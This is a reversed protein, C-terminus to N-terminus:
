RAGTWSPALVVANFFLRLTSLQTARFNPDDAFLIVQGRGKPELWLYPTRALAEQAEPWMFGALRLSDRDPFAAVHRATRSLTFAYNSQVMAGLEQPSGFGLWHEDDVKVRLIAGPTRLLDLERTLPRPEAPRESSAPESASPTPQGTGRGTGRGPAAPAALRSAAAGGRDPADFFLRVPVEDRKLTAGTWEVGKRTAFAAAGKILVVTGGEEVWRRVREIGREGLAEQYAAPAGHPFVIVGYRSLDASRLQDIKIATFPLRLREELTFWTAGYSREDTPEDTVVALRPPKLDVFPDGGLDPGAQTRAGDVAWLRVGTESALALLRDHLTAPNREVRALISGRPFETDLVRFPETAVALKFQEALLRATLRMSGLSASSVLYGYRARAPAAPVGPGQGGAAGDKIAPERGAPADTPSGTLSPPDEAWYAEVGYLLPLSWATTDYFGDRPREGALTAREKKRREEQLFEDKFAPELELIAKALRKQPQAMPVVYAGAPIDRPGPPGGLYSHARQLKIPAALRHVEIRQARLTEVLLAARAEDAGPVLVVQKMPEKQGEEIATKKYRYLERLRATKHEATLALTAMSATHHHLVGDRLTVITGDERELALGKSGGGDTEFTMGIAGNLTPWSDWFGAYFLDFRGRRYYSWGRRDFAEAIADGYRNMWEVQTTTVNTNIAEAPPPFFMNRTQGHHDVFVVPNWQGFARVLAATEVQTLFFADRNLDIQYHNNNTSMGWPAHHEAAAPDATGGRGVQVSNYWAVFREHSEPNHAPTILIVLRELIRRTTEDTGAALQYSTQIASEFAASENGDNAHNLWAVAPLAAALREAEEDTTTRPDALKQLGAKIEDLRALNAPASLIVLYLPRREVSQGYQEIRVRDSRRLAALWRELGAYDTHYTGIPYGLVQEPTPVTPDYTGGPFFEPQRGAPRGALLAVLGVALVGRRRATTM